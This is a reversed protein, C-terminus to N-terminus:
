ARHGVVIMPRVFFQLSVDRVHLFVGLTRISREGARNDLELDLIQLALPCGNEVDPAARTEEIELEHVTVIGKAHYSNIWVRPHHFGSLNFCLLAAHVVEKNPDALCLSDWQVAFGDIHDHAASGQVMPSAQWGPKAFDPAHESWVSEEDCVIDVSGIRLPLSLDAVYKQSKECSSVCGPVPGAHTFVPEGGVIDLRKQFVFPEMEFEDVCSGVEHKDSPFLCRRLSGLIQRVPSTSLRHTMTPAM